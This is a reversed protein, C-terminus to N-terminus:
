FSVIEVLQQRNPVNLWYSGGSCSNEVYIFKRWRLDFKGGCAPAEFYDLFTMFCPALITSFGASPAASLSRGDVRVAYFM